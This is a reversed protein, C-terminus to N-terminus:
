AATFSITTGHAVRAPVVIGDPRLVHAIDAAALHRALASLDAVTISFGSFEPTEPTVKAPATMTGSTALEIRGRPLQYVLGSQPDPVGPVGTFAALFADHANAEPVAMQVCALQAAGNPHKQLDHSWFNQPEHQQCVFFGLGPADPNSAFALSFAVRVTIGDPKVAQREFFFPEFSGIGSAHFAANDAVADLSELVLMSMGEGAELADRVFAGFSFRGPAHEPILHREGVTILELFSGAFQVIRNHTGWPHRNRAGVRFGLREYFAGAADLDHVGLVLHDLGRGAM